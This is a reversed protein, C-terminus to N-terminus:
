PVRPREGDMEVVGMPNGAPDRFLGLIVVGPVEFRPADVSGGSKEILALAAAVDPVGIYIRKETPVKRIAGRMPSAVPVSDQGHQDFEWAFVSSYFERLLADDNGALDFFFIPQAVIEVM